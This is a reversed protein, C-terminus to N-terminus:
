IGKTTDVKQKLPVALSIRTGSGPRSEIECHGGLRKLRERITFLGFGGNRGVMNAADFGIGDDEVSIHLVDDNRALCIKASSAQSHKVINILLERVIRFLLYRTDGDTQKPQGDDQLRIRIGHTKQIGEVFSEVAAEFGIEVLVPPCLEVTLSRTFQITQGILERIDELERIFEPSSSSKRLAALKFQTAVLNQGVFDHLDAAILHREREEARSEISSMELAAARLERQYVHIKEEMGKRETIDQAVGVYRTVRGAEDRVPYGRDWILRISGDPRMIRYECEFPQGLTKRELTTLLRDRDEQHVADLFSLPNEYLSERSRGWVREYEPSIYFVEKMDVDSMWFVESITEAILRFRQESQRLSEEAQGRAVVMANFASALNGIEDGSEVPVPEVPLGKELANVSQTLKELPRTVKKVALYVIVSSSFIFILMIVANRAVIAVIEKHYSDKSLIIRVYGIVKDAKGGATDGFYLSEDPRSASRIVVPRLFEVARGTETINPPRDARLDHASNKNLPFADKEYSTKTRAYLAKYGSNYITVAVVNAMDIIGEAANKLLEENEAFIGVVSNHALLETLVEGRQRLGERERESEHVVAFLTVMSLVIIIVVIFSLLVKLGFSERLAIRIKRSM